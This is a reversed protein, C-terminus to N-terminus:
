KSYQVGYTLAYSPISSQREEILSKVASRSFFTPLSLASAAGGFSLLSLITTSSFM